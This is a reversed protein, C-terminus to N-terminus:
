AHPNGISATNSHHISTAVPGVNDYYNNSAASPLSNLKHLTKKVSGPGARTSAEKATPGREPSKVTVARTPIEVPKRSFGGAASENYVDKSVAIMEDYKAQLAIHEANEPIDELLDPHLPYIREYNGLNNLENKDKIRIKKKKM